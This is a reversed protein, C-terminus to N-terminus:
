LDDGISVAETYFETMLKKLREKDENINLGDIYENLLEPTSKAMDMANDAVEYDKFDEIVNLDSLDAEYLRTLFREFFYPNTKNVVILKVYCGKYSTVDFDKYDNSQSDDYFLKKFIVNPNEIFTLERTETDFIHFGRRDGYDAWTIEYPSGLYHINDRQMKKHYHGSLVMDFRKFYNRQFGERSFVGPMLEFGNIEFHGMLIQAKTKKIFSKCKDSNEANIWPVLGLNVHNPNILIPKDVISFNKTERGFLEHIANVELTNKYFSDHNGILIHCHLDKEIIPNIFCKKIKSLINFNIFKRRDVIDGLHIITDIKRAEIEPFFIEDYFRAAYEMMNLNDGRMGFHSDNDIAIKM